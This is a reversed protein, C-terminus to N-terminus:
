RVGVAGTRVTESRHIISSELIKNQDISSCGLDIGEKKCIKFIALLATLAPESQNNQLQSIIVSGSDRIVSLTAPLWQQSCSLRVGPSHHLLASILPSSFIRSWEDPSLTRIILKYLETGCHVIHPSSLCTTLNSVFDQTLLQGPGYVKFVATLHIYKSKSTWRLNHIRTMLVDELNKDTDLRLIDCLSEFCLESVGKTPNEFNSGAIDVVDQLTEHTM